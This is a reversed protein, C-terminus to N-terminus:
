FVPFGSFFNAHFNPKGSGYYKYVRSDSAFYCAQKTAFKCVNTVHRQALALTPQSLKELFIADRPRRQYMYYRVTIGLYKENTSYTPIPVWVM